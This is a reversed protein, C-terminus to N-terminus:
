VRTITFPFGKFLQNGWGLNQAAFHEVYTVATWALVGVLPSVHLWLEIGAYFALAEILTIWLIGLAKNVIGESPM